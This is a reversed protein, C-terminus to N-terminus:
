GVCPSLSEVENILGRIHEAAYLIPSALSLRSGFSSLPRLAFKDGDRLALQLVSTFGQLIRLLADLSLLILQRCDLTARQRGLSISAVCPLRQRQDLFSNAPPEEERARFRM